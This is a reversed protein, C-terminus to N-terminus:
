YGRRQKPSYPPNDIMIKIKPVYGPDSMSRLGDKYHELHFKEELYIRNSLKSKAKAANEKIKANIEKIESKTLRMEERLKVNKTETEYVVNILKRGKIAFMFAIELPPIESEYLIKEFEEPNYIHSDPKPKGVKKAQEPAPINAPHEKFGCFYPENDKVTEDFPDAGKFKREAKLIKELPKPEMDKKM